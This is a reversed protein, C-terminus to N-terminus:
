GHAGRFTITPIAYERPELHITCRVEGFRAALHEEVLETIRHATPLDDAEVVMHLEIFVRQGLVGRSAIDHVNLVGPVTMAVEHIAEPAIAIQDVLWPLNARLVQWCARVLLLCLPIAVAVDFWTQNLVLVGALGLLVMVTTWIDSTTHRADALLLQSNLRRGESREYGALLVNCGLVILLLVLDHGDMRLPKLGTAIREVATRLIEVATFLIFGAIALAGVAEYKDHGYPHDRDPQPDSLGNTLLGLLSSLGDTASHMADALVALSGSMLGIVLKLVSMAVNVALAVLLVRKVAARNDARSAASGNSTASNAGAAHAVGM